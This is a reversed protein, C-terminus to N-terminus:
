DQPTFTTEDGHFDQGLLRALLHDKLRSLFDQYFVHILSASVFEHHAM